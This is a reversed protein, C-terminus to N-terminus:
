QSELWKMAESPDSFMKAVIGHEAYQQAFKEMNIKGIIQKPQVIAWYKWGAKVTQPFWQSVAWDTDEKTLVPNMRDDSLWKQAKNQKLLEVGETLADQFAKGFTFKHMEHHVIKKEPHYWLTISENDLVVIDSM